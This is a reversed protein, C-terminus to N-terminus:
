KQVWNNLAKRVIQADWTHQLIQHQFDDRLERMLECDGIQQDISHKRRHEDGQKDSEEVERCRAM